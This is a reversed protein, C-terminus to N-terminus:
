QGDQLAAQPGACGGAIFFLLSELCPLGAEVIEAAVLRVCTLADLLGFPLQCEGALAGLRCGLAEGGFAAFAVLRAMLQLGAALLRQSRVALRPGVEDISEAPQPRQ